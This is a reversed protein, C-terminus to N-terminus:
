VLHMFKQVRIACFARCEVQHVSFFMRDAFESSLLAQFGSKSFAMAEQGSRM